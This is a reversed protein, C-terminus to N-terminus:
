IQVVAYTGPGAAEIAAIINDKRALVSKWRNRSLVVIALKRNKLNQQDALHTDTTLLVDFDAEEAARLLQGNTLESWDQERATVVEYNRLYRRLGLPTGQDFLIRM